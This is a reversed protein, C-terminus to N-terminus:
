ARARPAATWVDEETLQGSQVAFRALSNLTVVDAVEAANDSGLALAEVQDLLKIFERFDDFWFYTTWGHNYAIRSQQQRFGAKEAIRKAQL